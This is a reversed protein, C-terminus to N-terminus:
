YDGPDRGTFVGLDGLLSILAFALAVLAIVILWGPANYYWAAVAGGAPVGIFFIDMWYSRRQGSM